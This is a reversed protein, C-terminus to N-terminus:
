GAVTAPNQCIVLRCVVETTGSCRPTASATASTTATSAGSAATARRASAAAPSSTRRSDPQLRHLLPRGGRPLPRRGPLRHVEVLRRRLHRAPCRTTATSSRAASRRTATRACARGLLQGARDGGVGDGPAGPLAGARGRVGLRRRRGARARRPALDAARAAARDGDALRQAVSMAREMSGVGAAARHLRARDRLGRRRDRHVLVRRTSRRAGSCGACGTRAALSRRRAGRAVLAASLISQCSRPRRGRGRRLLRVLRAPARARGRRRRVAAYLCAVAGAALPAPRRRVLGGLVLECPPSRGCLGPARPCGSRRRASARRPRALAAERVGPPACSWPPSSCVTRDAGAAM